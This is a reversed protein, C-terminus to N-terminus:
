ISGSARFIGDPRSDNLRLRIGQVGGRSNKYARHSSLEVLLDGASQVWKKEIQLRLDLDNLSRRLPNMKDLAKPRKMGAGRQAMSIPEAATHVRIEKGGGDVSHSGTHQLYARRARM